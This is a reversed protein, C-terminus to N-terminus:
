FLGKREMFQNEWNNIVTIFFGTIHMYFMQAGILYIKFVFKKWTLKYKDWLLSSYHINKWAKGSFFFLLYELASSGWSQM